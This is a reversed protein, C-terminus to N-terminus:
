TIILECPYVAFSRGLYKTMKKIVLLLLLCMLLPLARHLFVGTFIALFCWYIYYTLLGAHNRYGDACVTVHGFLIM